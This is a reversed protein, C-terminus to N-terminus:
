CSRGRAILQDIVGRIDPGCDIFDGLVIILDDRRPQIADILTHLATSRGHIDGIALTRAVSEIAPMVWGGLYGRAQVYQVLWGPPDPIAGLLDDWLLQQYRTIGNEPICANFDALLDADDDFLTAPGLYARCHTATAAGPSSNKV